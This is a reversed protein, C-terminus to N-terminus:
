VVQIFYREFGPINATKHSRAYNWYLYINKESKIGRGQYYEPNSRNDIMHTVLNIYKFHGNIDKKVNKMSRLLFKPAEQINLHDIDTDYLINTLKFIDNNYPM